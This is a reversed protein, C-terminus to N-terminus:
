HNRRQTVREQDLSRGQHKLVPIREWDFIAEEGKVVTNVSLIRKVEKCRRNVSAEAVRFLQDVIMPAYRFDHGHSCVRRQYCNLVERKALWSLTDVGDLRRYDRRSITFEM